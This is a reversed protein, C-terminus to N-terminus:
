PLLSPLRGVAVAFHSGFYLLACLAALCAWAPGAIVKTRGLRIALPQQLFELLIQLNPLSLAKSKRLRTPRNQFGIGPRGM